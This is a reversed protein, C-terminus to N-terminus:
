LAETRSKFPWWGPRGAPEWGPRKHLTAVATAPPLWRIANSKTAAVFPEKKVITLTEKGGGFSRPSPAFRAAVMGRPTQAPHECPIALDFPQM